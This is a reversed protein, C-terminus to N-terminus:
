TPYIPIDPIGISGSQPPMDDAYIKWVLLAKTSGGIGSLAPNESYMFDHGYREAIRFEDEPFIVKDVGPMTLEVDDTELEHDPITIRRRIIRQVLKGGQQFKWASPWYFIFKVDRACMAGTNTLTINLKYDWAGPIRTKSILPTILPFRLRNMVDRIEHDYMAESKFNLRKYYRRDSAQHATIGQPISVVYAVRDKHLRALLVQNIHLDNIRPRINGQIVQELWEKTVEAPNYGSDIKTPIHGDEEVGYVIIGGGSNAFASVDKSIEDHKKPDNKQLSACRKYDLSVSERVKNKILADLDDETWRRSNSLEM